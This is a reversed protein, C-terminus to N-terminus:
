ELVFFDTVLCCPAGNEDFGFYSPYSGDGFGSSFAAFDPTKNGSISGFAYSYTHIYTSNFQEEFEDYLNLGKEDILKATQLDMFGGTGSDVGYGFFSDSKDLKSLDDHETLALEWKVPKKESFCVMALAVRNDTNFSAVSISIPYTGPKVTVTYPDNEFCICPDNAVIKGTPFHVATLDKKTLTIETKDQTLKVENEFAYNLNKENLYM